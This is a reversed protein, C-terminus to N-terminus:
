DGVPATRRGSLSMPPGYRRRNEATDPVPGHTVLDITVSAANQGFASAAPAFAALQPQMAEVSDVADRVCSRVLPADATAGGSLQACLSRATHRVRERLADRGATTSLDLDAYSVRESLARVDPGVGYRSTVTIEPAAQALSPLSALAAGAILALLLHKAVSKPTM